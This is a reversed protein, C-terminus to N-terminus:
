SPAGCAQNGAHFVLSPLGAAPVRIRSLSAHPVEILLLRQDPVGLVRGVLIRIVGGHTVLLPRAFPLGLLREWAATVRASLDAFPEAGPPTCGVTDAWLRKLEELPIDAARRNEWAGFRREGIEPWVKLPLSRARALERAPELCRRAPSAIVADWDPQAVAVARLQEWGADTLPDDSSGRYRAGGCVEGHRLLDIFREPPIDTM